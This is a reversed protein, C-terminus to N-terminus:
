GLRALLWEAAEFPTVGLTDATLRVPGVQEGDCRMCRARGERVRMSPVRDGNTHRTPRPCHWVPKTDPGPRAGLAKMVLEMDLADAAILPSLYTPVEERPAIAHSSQSKRRLSAAASRIQALEVNGDSGVFTGPRELNPRRRLEAVAVLTAALAVISPAPAIVVEKTFQVRNMANNVEEVNTGGLTVADIEESVFGVSLIKDNDSPKSGRVRKRLSGALDELDSVSGATMVPLWRAAMTSLATFAAAFIAQDINADVVVVASSRLDSASIAASEIAPVVEQPSTVSLNFVQASGAQESADCNIAIYTVFSSKSM